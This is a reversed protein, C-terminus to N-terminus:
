NRLLTRLQAGKATKNFNPAFFHAKHKRKLITIGWLGNSHRPLELLNVKIKTLLSHLREIKQLKADWEFKSSINEDFVFWRKETCLYIM